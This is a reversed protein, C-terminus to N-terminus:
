ENQATWLIKEIFTVSLQRCTQATDDMLPNYEVFDMSTLTPLSPLSQVFQEFDDILLGDPVRVGTAPFLTPDFADVDFSLHLRQIGREAMETRVEEMVATMGKQHISASSYIHLNLKKALEQEGEDLDRAGIWFINQHPVRVTPVDNLASQCYGMLAAVPMGHIHGTPSTRETNMDGHADFWILGINNDYQIAGSVSGLGISHDGGITLVFRGAHLQGAVVQALQENAKVICELQRAYMTSRDTMDVEPIDINVITQIAAKWDTASLATSLLAPAHEVGQKGRGYWMPVNIIAIDKKRSM